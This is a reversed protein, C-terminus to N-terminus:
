KELDKIRKELEENKTQLQQVLEYLKDIGALAIVGMRDYAVGRIENEDKTVVEPYFEEVDQAYTGLQRKKEEDDNWHFIVKPIRKIKELDGDVNEIHTKLTKDSSSFLNGGEMYVAENHHLIQFTDATSPAGVLYQKTSSKMVLTEGVNIDDLFGAPSALVYKVDFTTTPFVIREFYGSKYSINAIYHNITQASTSDGGDDILLVRSGPKFVNYASYNARIGSDLCGEEWINNTANKLVFCHQCNNGVKNGKSDDWIYIYSCNKDITNYTNRKGLVINYSNEGFTNYNSHEGVVVHSSDAKIINNYCGSDITIGVCGEELVNDYCHWPSISGNMIFVNDFIMRLKYVGSNTATKHYSPKIINNRPTFTSASAHVTADYCLNFNDKVSPIYSFTYFYGSDAGTTKVFVNTPFFGKLEYLGYVSNGELKNGSDYGMARFENGTRKTSYSAYRLATPFSLGDYNADYIALDILSANEFIVRNNSINGTTSLDVYNRFFKIFRFFM